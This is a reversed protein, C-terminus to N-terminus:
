FRKRLQLYLRHFMNGSEATGEYNLSLSLKQLPQWYINMEGIHQVFGTQSEPLTNDSFHYGAGIQFNGGPMDKRINLGAIRANVYNSQLWTASLTASLNVGPVNSWTFYGSVNASPHPDSKLFRYGGQLGMNMNGSIRWNGSLRYGQRLEEELIRDTFTKYTEYYVVNKRADYSGIVSVGKAVKYSLSLYLGTLDLTSEPVDNVLKYLDLELTSFFRLNRILTNSHQLYVFRRDTVFNNTQEMFAMTSETYRGSSNTNLSLYAGYQFLSLDFGYNTYDPRSGALIGFSFNNVSKEFQIGDMAGINSIRHNVKRGASLSMTKNIEYRASLNYIKLASFIDNTVSQWEGAKHRFSIYTDFSLGSGGINGTNLALTYRFRQSDSADTDSFDSYSAASFSGRLKTGKRVTETQSTDAVIAAPEVTDSPRNVQAEPDPIGAKKIVAVVIHDVPVSLGPIKSCLCSTSSLSNVVFAPILKEGEYVFLTDGASIGSTSKFKVYINQSSIFSVKGVLNDEVSQGQTGTYFLFSFIILLIKKM